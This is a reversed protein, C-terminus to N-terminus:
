LAKPRIHCSPGNGTVGSKAAPRPAGGAAAGGCGKGTLDEAGELFAELTEAAIPGTHNVGINLKGKLEKIGLAGFNNSHELKEVVLKEISLHEIVIAPAAEAPKDATLTRLRAELEAIRRELAPSPASGLKGRIWAAFSPM